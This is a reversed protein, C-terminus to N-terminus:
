ANESNATEKAIILNDGTIMKGEIVNKICAKITDMTHPRPPDLFTLIGLMRWNEPGRNIDKRAVALSRIGRKGLAIEKSKVADHIEDKNPCLDLIVHVAGKSMAFKSGDKDRLTAEIRKRTPDFPLFDLQDYADCGSLDLGSNLLIMTDLADRPPEKWKTAVSAQFLVSDKGEGPTLIPCDDQILMKNLTLTGTKDSCLMNMGAM